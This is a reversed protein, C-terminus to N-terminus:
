PTVLQLASPGVMIFSITVTTSTTKLDLKVGCISWAKDHHLTCGGGIGPFDKQVCEFIVSCFDGEVWWSYNKEEGEQLPM